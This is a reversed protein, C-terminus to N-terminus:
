RQRVHLAEQAFSGLLALFMLRHRPCATHTVGLPMPYEAAPKACPPAGPPETVPCTLDKGARQQEATSNM